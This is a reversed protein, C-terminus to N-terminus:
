PTPSPTLTITPTPTPDNTVIIKVYFPADANFGIGFLKGDPDQLMWNGQYSGPSLPAFFTVSLDIAQGPLVEGSLFHEYQAGMANQSYYVLKYLRTWKCSGSNVLRWTKTFEQGGYMHSDDPITIDFPVGPSAKNCPLDSTATPEPTVSRAITAIQTVTPLPTATPTTTATPLFAQTQFAAQTVQVISTKLLDEENLLPPTPLAPTATIDPRCATLVVLLLVLLSLQFSKNRM